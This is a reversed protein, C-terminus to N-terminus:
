SVSAASKSGTIMSALSLGSMWACEARPGILWDGCAGLRLDANWLANQGNGKASAYRWRHAAAEVPPLTGVGLVDKLAALLAPAADSPTDELHATSWASSAYVVWAEPEARGPKSRNCVALAIPGATSHSYVPAPLAEEFVFLGTWCPQSLSLAASRAMAFDYLALIPVAQEAPVAVIVADYSGQMGQDLLIKWRGGSDSLIGQVFTNWRVDHKAAAQGIIASMRSVGVWAEPGGVSWPVVLGAAQWTAVVKRFEPYTAHFCPAGHDMHATGFRTEMRRTSMRGGPGRAKDYLVVQHGAAKLADACSLGALGAGIIACKM